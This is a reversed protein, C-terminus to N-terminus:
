FHELVPDTFEQIQIVLLYLGVHHVLVGWWSGCIRAIACWCVLDWCRILLLLLLVVCQGFQGQFQFLVSVKFVNKNMMSKTFVKLHNRKSQFVLLMQHYILLKYGPIKRKNLHNQFRLPFLPALQIHDSRIVLHFLADHFQDFADLHVRPLLFLWTSLRVAVGLAWAWLAACCWFGECVAANVCVALWQLM